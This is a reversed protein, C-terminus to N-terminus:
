GEELGLGIRKGLGLGKVRGMCMLKKLGLGYM